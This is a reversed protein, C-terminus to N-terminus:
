ADKHVGKPEIGSLSLACEKLNVSDLSIYQKTSDMDRHGLVQSVTEVPVGSIVMNRGISRRLAHIGNNQNFGARIRRSEYISGISAQCTFAKYPAVACLFVNEEEQDSKCFATMRGHLIYDKIAEGVDKTLPLFLASGTKQQFIQIEGIAWDIDKLKLNAIDSARMGTVAALMIIAYDRKGVLTSRDILSLVKATEEQPVPPLIKQEVPIHFLFIKEISELLIGQHYLYDYTRKLQSRKLILTRGGFKKVCQVLYERVAKGDVKQFNNYGNDELWAFHNRINGTYNKVTSKSWGYSSSFHSILQRSLDEYYQNLQPKIGSKRKVWLGCKEYESFREVAGVLFRFHNYSIEGTKYRSEAKKAYEHLVDENLVDLGREDHMKVIPVLNNEYTYWATIPKYGQSIMADVAQLALEQIKM